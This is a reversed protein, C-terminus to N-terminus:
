RALIHFHLYRVEQIGAGNTLVRYSSLHQARIISGILELCGMVYPADSPVIDAVDKIDKRPIVVIDVPEDPFPNKMAVCYKTQAVEQPLMGPALRIGVSAALGALEPLAHCSPGCSTLLPFSRPQSGIFLYGGLAVGVLFVALLQLRRHRLLGGMIGFCRRNGPDRDDACM